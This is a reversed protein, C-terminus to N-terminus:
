ELKTRLELLGLPLSLRSNPFTLDGLHCSVKTSTQWCQPCRCVYLGLPGLLLRHRSGTPVSTLVGCAVDTLRPGDDQTRTVSVLVSALISKSCRLRTCTHRGSGRSAEGQLNGRERGARPEEEGTGPRNVCTCVPESGCCGSSGCSHRHHIVVGRSSAARHTAQQPARLFCLVALHGRLCQQLPRAGCGPPM